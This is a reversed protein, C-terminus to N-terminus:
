LDGAVHETLLDADASVLRLRRELLRAAIAATERLQGDLRDGELRLLLALTACLFPAPVLRLPRSESAFRRPTLANAPCTTGAPDMMTRWRPVLNRAPSPAPMPTSWVIKALTVPVSTNVSFPAPRKM